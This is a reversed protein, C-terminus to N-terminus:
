APLRVVWDAIARGIVEPQDEQIYHYGSGVRVVELGPVQTRYWAVNTDNVMGASGHLLLRPFTARQLFPGHRDFEVLNGVIADEPGLVQFPWALQAQRNGPTLYPSKYGAIEEPSLERETMTQISDNFADLELVLDPGHAPDIIRQCLDWMSENWPTPQQFETPVIRNVTFTEMLAMARVQDPQRMAISLGLASGWDHVALVYRDLKMAELFRFLYGLHLFYSYPLDPKDSRGMGIMDVAIVRAVKSVLPIVNRWGFTWSPNGHLFVVAPGVGEDIYHMRHGCVEFYHAEYEFRASM